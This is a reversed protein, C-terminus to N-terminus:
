AVVSPLRGHRTSNSTHVQVADPQDEFTTGTAVRCGAADSLFSAVSDLTPHDFLATPAIEVSLRAALASVFATAALSDLGASMLPASTEIITGM